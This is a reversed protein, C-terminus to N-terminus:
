KVKLSKPLLFYGCFDTYPGRDCTEPNTIIKMSSDVNRAATEGPKHGWFDPHKRYWHYDEGPWVVLAVLLRPAETDPFCDGVEHAGDLKAAAIAAACSMDTIEKGGGRGPQPFTDTRKNSAYAYCNNDTIHAPDNWFKPNYPLTEFPCPASTTSGGQKKGGLLAGALKEILDRLFKFLEALLNGVKVLLALEALFAAHLFTDASVFLRRLPCRRLLEPSTVEVSIGRYGLRQPKDFVAVNPKYHLILDLIRTAIDFPIRWCPNQRGSFLDITLLM